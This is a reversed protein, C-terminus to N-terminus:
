NLNSLVWIVLILGAVGLSLNMVQKELKPKNGNRALTAGKRAKELSQAMGVGTVSTDAM